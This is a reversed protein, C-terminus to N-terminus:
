RVAQRELQEEVLHLLTKSQYGKALSLIRATFAHYHPAHRGVREAWLAIEQMDGRRALLHLQQLEKEPVPVLPAAPADLAVAPDNAQTYTWELDLLRALQALLKDFDIPKSLFANAGAALSRQEGVGSPSASTAIVPVNAFGQIQRLRRTAELGDMDAMVVDTVILAPRESL